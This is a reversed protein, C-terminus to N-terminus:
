APDHPEKSTSEQLGMAVRAGLGVVVAIGWFIASVGVVASLTGFLLPMAVSSANITMLRLGLAEGQQHEPTIHHLTSMVMPQVSGLSLGLCVSCIGMTWASPMLPYLGYLVATMLMAGTIVAWEQLHKAIFPILIRVAAAAIAFAGLITGITSASYDRNHGLVPVVFTHVDWCTSLFWNVILLRRMAPNKLLVWASSTKATVVVESVPLAPTDRVWYWCLLPLIAMLIFAAQFGSHDILLGAALPGIFNSMAPGVSLWGFAKKLALPSEAVRGVYRQLAIVVVGTAGGTCLAAFCLVAFQPWFATFIVTSVAAAGAGFSSVLVSLVVPRQFSHRDIFRGAPLALFVSAIAFLALLFGVALESHGNRLALLPAALRTGAMCAHLCIQGIIIKALTPNM